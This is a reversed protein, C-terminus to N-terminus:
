VQQMVEPSEIEALLDGARVRSGIDVLRKSLYGTARANVTAEEIAQTDGPLELAMEPAATPTTAIVALPLRVEQADAALVGQQRIRPLIGMVLMVLALALGLGAFAALGAPKPPQPHPTYPDIQNSEM